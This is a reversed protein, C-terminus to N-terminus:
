KLPIEDKSLQILLTEIEKKLNSPAIIYVAHGNIKTNWCGYTNINDAMYKLSKPIAGFEFEASGMYDFSFIPRLLNMADPSLGGNKLGGGFSFPNDYNGHSKELRQILWTNNLEM